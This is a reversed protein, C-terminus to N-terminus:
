LNRHSKKKFIEGTDERSNMVLSEATTLAKIMKHCTTERVSWSVGQRFAELTEGYDEYYLSLEPAHCLFDM